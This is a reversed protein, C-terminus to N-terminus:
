EASTKDRLKFSDVLEKLNNSFNELDTTTRGTLKIANSAKQAGSEIGRLSILVQNNATKQQQTSLSIQKAADSTTHAGNLIEKLLDVTISTFNMGERIMSSSKESAIVLRNIAAQIEGIKEEIEGTSETVNDALRRIEAAVVGFRRGAEGASSAEIAANFAILRTQDAVNNIIEMVKNIEKSKNGLKLIENISTQNDRYIEDMKGMMEQVAKSGKESDKLSHTSIDVVSQSHDAIQTSSASLEEMTSTIQSVSASQETAVEAQDDIAKTIDESTNQVKITTEKVMSVIHHIKNMFTNFQLSLEGVEDLSQIELRTTLDGEGAAITRLGNSVYTIPMLLRNSVFFLIAICIGSVVISSITITNKNSRIHSNRESLSLGLILYGEIQSDSILVTLDTLSENYEVTTSKKFDKDGPDTFLKQLIYEPVKEEEPYSFLPDKDTDLIFVHSLGPTAKVAETLKILTDYRGLSIANEIPSAYLMSMVRIKDEMAKTILLKIQPPFYLNIGLAVLAFAIIIPVVLKTKISANLKSNFMSINQRNM